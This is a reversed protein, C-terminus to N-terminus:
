FFIHISIGGLLAATRMGGGTAYVATQPLGAALPATTFLMMIIIFPAFKKIM